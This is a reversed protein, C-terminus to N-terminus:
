DYHKVGGRKKLKGKLEALLQDQLSLGGLSGVPKKPTIKKDSENEKKKRSKKVIDPINNVPLPPPNNNQTNVVPFKTNLSSNVKNLLRICQDLKHDVNNSAKMMAFLECQVYMIHDLKMNVERLEDRDCM